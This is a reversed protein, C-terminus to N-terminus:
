SIEPHERLLATGWSDFTGNVIPDQLLFDHAEQAPGPEIPKIPGVARALMHMRAANEFLVGLYAAEEICKGVTLYGHNALLIARKDGLATSIIRGEEDAVPVGPWDPLYACDNYFVAADMHAVELPEGTMSLASAYPPHTHVIANVDPRKDYIWLHFRMGPNAMSDGEVLNLDAGVRVVSAQTANAFGGALQTTWYTGDGARVSVQGAMTLAHGEEALKRCALALKLQVPWDNGVLSRNLDDRLRDQAEAENIDPM